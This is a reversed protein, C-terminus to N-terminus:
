KIGRREDQDDLMDHLFRSSEKYDELEMKQLAALVYSLLYYAEKSRNFYREYKKAVEPHNEKAYEKFSLKEEELLNM